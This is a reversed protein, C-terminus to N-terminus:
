QGDRRGAIFVKLEDPGVAFCMSFRCLELKVLDPICKKVM